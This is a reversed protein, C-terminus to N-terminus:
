GDRGERMNLIRCAETMELHLDITGDQFLSAPLDSPPGTFEVTIDKPHWGEKQTYGSNARLRITFSDRTDTREIRPADYELM